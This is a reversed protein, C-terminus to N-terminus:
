SHEKAAKRQKLIEIMLFDQYYPAITYFHVPKRRKMTSNNCWLIKKLM